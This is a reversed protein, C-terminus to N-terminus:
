GGSSSSGESRAVDEFRRLEAAFFSRRDKTEALWTRWEEASGEIIQSFLPERCTADAQAIKREFSSRADVDEGFSQKVIDLLLDPSAIDFGSDVMCSAYIAQVKKFDDSRLYDAGVVFYSAVLDEYSLQDFVPQLEISRECSDYAVGYKALEDDTLAPEDTSETPPEISPTPPVSSPGALGLGNKSGSPDPPATWRAEVGAFNKSEGYFEISALDVPFPTPILADGAAAMCRGVEAERAEHTLVNLGVQAAFTPRIEYYATSVDAALEGTQTSKVETAIRADNATSQESTAEQVSGCASLALTGALILTKSNM